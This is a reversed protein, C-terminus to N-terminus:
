TIQRRAVSAGHEEVARNPARLSSVVAAVIEKFSLASLSFRGSVIITAVTAHSKRAATMHRCALFINFDKALRTGNFFSGGGFLFIVIVFFPAGDDDEHGDKTRRNTAHADYAKTKM